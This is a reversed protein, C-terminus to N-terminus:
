RSKELFEKSKRSYTTKMTTNAEDFCDSNLDFRKLIRYNVFPGALPVIKGTIPNKVLLTPM